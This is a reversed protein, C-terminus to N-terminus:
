LNNINWNVVALNNKGFVDCINDVIILINYMYHIVYLIIILKYTLIVSRGNRLM